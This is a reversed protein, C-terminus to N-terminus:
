EPATEAAPKPKKELEMAASNICYRLGTPQPGDNFVHGLHGGCRKCLVETRVMGHSLDPKTKINAEALPEYFAPWGCGSDYKTESEFLETGCGACRYTGEDFVKDYKGTFARETGKQRLIYYQEPTLVKKWGAETKPIPREAAAATKADNAQRTTAAPENRAESGPDSVMIEGESTPSDAQTKAAHGPCCAASGPEQGASTPEAHIASGCAPGCSGGDSGRIWQGAAVAGGLLVGLMLVQYFRM